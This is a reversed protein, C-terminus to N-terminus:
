WFGQGENRWNPWDALDNSTILRSKRIDYLKELRPDLGKAIQQPVPFFEAKYRHTAEPRLPSVYYIAISKRAQDPPCTIPQPIGHYSIDSTRFLVATNFHPTILETCNKLSEDWLQLHGGYEEKWKKNMYIILNVRREKETIPHISYDLHM